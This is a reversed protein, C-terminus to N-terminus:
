IINLKKLNSLDPLRELSECGIIELKELLELGDVGQIETLNKCDEIYLFTLRKLSSLDSLRELSECGIILFKELLELRDVDHIERLNKCRIISLHTLMKFNLCDPFRQIALCDEIELKRLSELRDLGLIKTLSGWDEIELKPSFKNLNWCNGIYLQRLEKFNSLDPLGEMSYFCGTIELYNLNKLTSIDLFTKLVRCDKIELMELSEMGEAEFNSIVDNGLLKLNRLNKSGRLKPLRKLSRCGEIHLVELSDLKEDVGEIEKLLNCFELHLTKLNRLGGSTSSIKVMSKCFCAHLSILSSPLGSIYQISPCDSVHLSTLISIYPNSYSSSLSLGMLSRCSSVNFSKLSNLQCIKSPLYVINSCYSLDLTELSTLQCIESPLDMLSGCFSLNLKILSIMCGLKEPLKQLNRCGKLNLKQLSTLQVIESPLDVLSKCWGLDLERLSIMHGLEEPLKKLNPCRGLNLKQLSTLQCIESPLSVLSKCWILDLERLSIMHGLEEPLKKLNPCSGLDLKQLSTLQCIESPLDMLSICSSLNLETLSVMRGLEKPLKKLSRCNELNLSKLSTLQSIESPLDNLRECDSMKLIVLNTLCCISTDIEELNKCDNLLLVELLRNASVDPTSFLRHCSTLILAKLKVAMKISNWGMWSKTIESFSLDLVALKRPCFNIQAYQNPFGKWSLWRLESFSHTFNGSFCAYDVRLLRLRTMAAFGVTMLGNSRSVTRFDISLGKVNSTGTQKDLVDLVDEQCLIRTRKGPEDINEQRIINMGLDRLLDHMGLEGKESITVLSKACLADLEVQSSLGCGDWIHCAIDKDMGIFFCATDLFMQKEEDELEDYSIELRKMVDDNPVKQLKKLMGKWVSKEKLYLSSGIVQLALPLGGIIKIMAKSLNLYNELPQDRRFAHRSFLQLSDNSNMAKPEYIENPEHVGLIQKIRNIIIIKSGAGFWKHNGILSEVQIDQDVDDLVILVKKGRFRQHIVNIGDDVSTIDQNEQKLIDSILQKQLHVLGNHRQATERVDTIFSCGEFHNVVTNYVAKAITTKGIGGLGHIRVIRRNNSEIDLLMLLEKIRSQIGVLNNSVSLPKKNLISAVKQVVEKILKGEYTDEKSPWGKLEGIERMAKKWKQVMTM